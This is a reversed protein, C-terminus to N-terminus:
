RGRRGPTRTRHDKKMKGQKSRLRKEAGKVKAKRDEPVFKVFSEFLEVWAEALVESPKLGVIGTNRAIINLQKKTFVGQLGELLTPKWQNYGYVAFDRYLPALRPDVLSEKRKVFQALVIDVAPAPTFKKRDIRSIIGMAYFPYLFVSAQSTPGHPPGIFREAAASQMILYTAEPPNPAKLLYNVMDATMNFPINAFVKYPRNPLNWHLFDAEIIEVNPTTAFEAKLDAALTQDLEVGIIKKARKALERTIVGTGPGIEVVVDDPGINTKEILNGVFESSRLFNQSHSIQRDQSM